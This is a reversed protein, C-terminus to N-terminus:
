CTQNSYKINTPTSNRGNKIYGGEKIKLKENLIRMFGDKDKPTIGYRRKDTEILIVDKYSTAYMTIWGYKSFCNNGLLYKPFRCLGAPSFGLDVIKSVNKIEEYQIKSSFLGCRLILEKEYFEYCMTPYIIMYLGVWCFLGIVIIGDILIFIIKGVGSIVNVGIIFSIFLIIIIGGLIYYTSTSFTPKFIQITKEGIM